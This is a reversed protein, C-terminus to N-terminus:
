LTMDVVVPDHDGARMFTTYDDVLTESAESSIRPISVATVNNMLDPELLVHDLLSRDSGRRYSYRQEEPLESAVNVLRSGVLANEFSSNIRPADVLTNYGREGPEENLDGIVAVNAAGSMSDVLSALFEAQLMRKEASEDGQLKSTFHNVMVTLSQGSEADVVGNKLPHFTALLPPRTFIKINRGTDSPATTNEQRIDSPSVRDSRYLIATDIGRPDSGEIIIPKYDFAALAPQAALDLLVKENEVEEMGIIDPAGMADSITISLKHLKGEYEAKTLVEDQNSDDVTDFLNYANLQAVRLSTSTDELPESVLGTVSQEDDPEPEYRTSRACGALAIAGAVLGAAGLCRRLSFIGTIASM